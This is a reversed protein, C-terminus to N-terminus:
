IKEGPLFPRLCTTFLSLVAAGVAPLLLWTKDAQTIPKPPDAAPFIQTLPTQATQPRSRPILNEFFDNKEVDEGVRTQYLGYQCPSYKPIDAARDIGRYYWAFDKQQSKHAAFGLDRSVQYATKGDFSDMPIDWNMTIPREGYLHLYVKPVDWVGYQLASAPFQGPDSIIPLAKRLLDTYLQHMGHGYEGNIDHGLVVLPRYQRLLTVVYDLLVEEPQGQSTYFRYADQLDFTYYDAFSGFVPYDRIGVNWLGDLMEHVRFPTLNRHDTLYAVQVRYGLEGGYWPLVGSFFLQEDDGHTSLLLLDAQGDPIRQWRQVWDPTAGSPFSYVENVQAAGDSFCLTLADPNEPFCETLDLYAHLFGATDWLYEGGGETSLTVTGYPQDFILYIGGIGEELELRVASNAGCERSTLADGDFLWNTQEARVALLLFPLAFLIICKKWM